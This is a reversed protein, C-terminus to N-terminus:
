DNRLDEQKAWLVEALPRMAPRVDLNARTCYLQMVPTNHMQRAPGAAKMGLRMLHRAVGVDARALTVMAPIGMAQQQMFGLTMLIGSLSAIGLGSSIHPGAPAVALCEMTLVEGIGEERLAAMFAADYQQLYPQARAADSDLDYRSYFQQAVVQGDFLFCTVLDQRWFQQPDLHSDPSGNQAFVAPWFAQWFGFARDHLRRAAASRPSRGALVVYRLADLLELEM